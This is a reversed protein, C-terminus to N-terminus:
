YRDERVIARQNALRELETAIECLPLVADALGEQVVYGPMGWVVSTAEDQAIVYGGAEKIWRCGNCGDKGMGTLIVAIVDGGYVPPVSRFLVDVAPRCSNEYPGKQIKVTEPCGKSVEMHFDGPAIYVVGPVIEMGAQAEVVSLQSKEDLREALCQTFMPPMHQVVLIPAPFTKSLRPIVEALANPGGTSVGIVVARVSFPTLMALAQKIPSGASVRASPSGQGCLSRIKSVLEKGVADKGKGGDLGSPKCVYDSAGFSLANITIEAAKKTFASCMIVPLNPYDKRIEKLTELGGLVPMEVDLTVIDPNLHPIKQLAIKGNPATGVVEIDPDSALMDSLMKRAIVADDVVLVRTKPM